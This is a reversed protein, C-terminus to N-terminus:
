SPPLSVSVMVKAEVVSPTVTAFASSPPTSPEPTEGMRGGARPDPARVQARVEPALSLAAWSAALALPATALLLRALGPARM